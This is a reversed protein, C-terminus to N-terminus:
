ISAFKKEHLGEAINILEYIKKTQVAENIDAAKEIGYIREWKGYEHFVQFLKKQKFEPMKPHIESAEPIHLIFGPPWYKLHFPTLHKTTHHLPYGLYDIIDGYKYLTIRSIALNGALWARPEHNGELIDLAKERLMNISKIPEDLLILEDMRKKLKKVSRRKLRHENKLECYLGQGLSHDILLKEEPFLERAARILVMCITQQNSRKGEDTDPTLWDIICDKNITQYLDLVMNNVKALIIADMNGPREFDIIKFLDTGKLFKSEEGEKFRATFTNVKDKLLM